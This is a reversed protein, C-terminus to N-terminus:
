YSDINFNECNGQMWIYFTQQQSDCVAWVGDM